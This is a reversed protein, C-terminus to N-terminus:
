ESEQEVPVVFQSESDHQAHCGVAGLLRQHDDEFFRFLTGLSRKGSPIITVTDRPPDIVLSSIFVNWDFIQPDRPSGCTWNDRHSHTVTYTAQEEPDGRKQKQVTVPAM